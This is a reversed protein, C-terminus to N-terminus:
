WIKIEKKPITAFEANDPLQDRFIAPIVGNHWLNTTTVKRGSFFEIEFKRGDFGRFADPNPHTREPGIWYHEGNVRVSEPAYKNLVKEQWFNCTFCMQNVQLTKNTHGDFRMEIPLSCKGCNM